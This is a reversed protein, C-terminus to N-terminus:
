DLKGNVKEDGKREKANIPVIFLSELRGYVDIVYGMLGICIDQILGTCDILVQSLYAARGATLALFSLVVLLRVHGQYFGPTVERLVFISTLISISWSMTLTFWWSIRNPKQDNHDDNVPRYADEVAGDVPLQLPVDAHRQRVVEEPTPTVPRCIWKRLAILAIHVASIGFAVTEFSFSVGSPWRFAM